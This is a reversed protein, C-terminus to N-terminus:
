SFSVQHRQLYLEISQGVQRIFATAENSPTDVWDGAINSIDLIPEGARLVKYRRRGLREQEPFIRFTYDAGQFPMFIVFGAEEQEITLVM